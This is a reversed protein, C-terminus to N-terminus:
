NKTNKRKTYAKIPNNLRKQILYYDLTDTDQFDTFHIDALDKNWRTIDFPEFFMEFLAKLMYHNITKDSITPPSYQYKLLEEEDDKQPINLFDNIAQTRETIYQDLDNTNINSRKLLYDTVNLYLKLLQDQDFVKTKSRGITQTKANDWINLDKLVRMFKARLKKQNEETNPIEFKTIQEDIFQNLTRYTKM